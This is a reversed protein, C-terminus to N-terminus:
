QRTTNNRSILDATFNCQSTSLNMAAGAAHASPVPFGTEDQQRYDADRTYDYIIDKCVWKYTNWTDKIKKDMNNMSWLQFDETGYFHFYNTTIYDATINAVTRESTYALMRM